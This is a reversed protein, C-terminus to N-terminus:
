NRLGIYGRYGRLLLTFRCGLDRLLGLINEIIGSIEMNKERIAM